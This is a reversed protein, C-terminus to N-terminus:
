LQSPLVLGRKNTDAGVLALLIARSYFIEASRVIFALASRFAVCRTTKRWTRYLLPTPSRSWMQPCPESFPVSWASKTKHDDFTTTSSLSSSWLTSRDFPFLPPSPPPPPTFFIYTFINCNLELFPLNPKSADSIAAHVFYQPPPSEKLENMWTGSFLYMKHYYISGLYALVFLLFLACCMLLCFLKWVQWILVLCSLWVLPATFLCSFSFPLKLVCRWLVIKTM